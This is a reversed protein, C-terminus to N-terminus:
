HFDSQITHQETQIGEINAEMATMQSPLQQEKMGHDHFAAPLENTWFDQYHEWTQDAEQKWKVNIKNM